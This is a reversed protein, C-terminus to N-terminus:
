PASNSSNIFSEIDEQCLIRSDIGSAQRKYWNITREVTLDISWRSEWGLITKAQSSDLTLHQSENYNSNSVSLKLEKGWYKEALKLIESVSKYSGPDPDINWTPKIPEVILRDVIRLYGELCDLVHQWPRVANPNRLKLTSNSVFASVADTLIRDEAFDGGGIVNGARAIAIPAGTTCMSWSQSLIDAMAKSASYPDIGGLSDSEIYGLNKGSIRYVKDTTIILRAKLSDVDDSARLVNLTGNVNTEYTTIPNKYSELVLPQAAFHILIEPKIINIAQTLSEYDRIDLRFDHRLLSQVNALKFLSNSNPNLAIGSVEHGLAVLFQTLWSGKFGTHGTILYHM